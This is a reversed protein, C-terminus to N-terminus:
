RKKRKGGCGKAKVAPRSDRIKGNHGDLEVIARYAHRCLNASNVLLSRRGGQMTLVVKTLPADPITDFTTRIQGTRPISDIKGAVAFDIRGSHLAIVLDPLKHSSSRLYVPGTLPEDLLPTVARVHGYISGEPCREGPRYGAAFQVRTCITRIHEQALFESHPLTVRIKSINADGKRPALVARLSPNESRKTGGKLGLGLKPKFGLGTCGAAQYRSTVTVPADDVATTFDLGAGLVTSATSTPDCSTPNLAFDPREVYVRIDRLHTSVGKIIHPIPDSGGADIFVEGTEYNVRVAERVVVTGLDFPGVKAATIAVISLPSGHYAGALYVKGPAYTLVSGVGAGVLTRGIESAAPCSPRAIEEAGLRSAVSAAAIAADPCFSVGALKATIGPPLKISFHTFEQEGDNRFLRLDFPSFSGANNNRSGAILGPKFPPLGASPCPGGGVGKTIQFSSESTRVKSPDAWPAFETRTTYTGCARPTVLPARAGERFRFEFDSFPLQPLDDFTTTIQGSRPDLDVKGALKVLVGRQPEELVVYLALLSGFPNHYPEAVYVNGDVTEDLLPTDVSVTGIKSDSPCGKSGDPHFSLESSELQAESCVNLGDAQSPNITVGEPLTVEVRKVDSGSIADPNTLGPNNVEVRARLGTPSDAEQSTPTAELAAELPVRDCGHMPPLDFSAKHIIEPHEYTNAEFGFTLPRTCETPTRLFSTGATGAPCSDGVAGVHVASDLCDGRVGDHSPSGPEGWFEFVAVQARQTTSLNYAKLDVGYDDPRLKAVLQIVVQHYVFAFSAVSGPPPEVNYLGVLALHGVISGRFVGVQSDPPCAPVNGNHSNTQLDVLSCRPISATNGILGPPLQASADKLSEHPTFFPLAGGLLKVAHLEPRLTTVIRDPAAGAQSMSSGDDNQIQGSWDMIGFPAPPGITVVRTETATPAGGGSVTASVEFNGTAGPEVAINFGDILNVAIGPRFLDPPMSLVCEFETPAPQDCEVYENISGALGISWNSTPIITASTGVELKVQMTGNLTEDSNNLFTFSPIFTEAGAEMTDPVVLGIEPARPTAQAATAAALVIVAAIALAGTRAIKV